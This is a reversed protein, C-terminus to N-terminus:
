ALEDFSALYPTGDPRHGVRTISAVALQMRWSAREDVGLACCVAAKIPSVHSVAVIIEDARYDDLVETLREGGPPAFEPDARWAAWDSGAIDTLGAGDWEGYDLEILRDDLEVPLGLPAAIADATQCARRLPSSVVRAVPESALRRGLMAAQEFGIDSLPVDM